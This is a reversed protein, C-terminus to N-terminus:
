YGPCDRLDDPHVSFAACAAQRLHKKIEALENELAEIRAQEWNYKGDAYIQAAMYSSDSVYSLSSYGGLSYGLLQALQERDENPFPLTAIKNLDLLGQNFLWDIIENKVFRGNEIRQMPHKM